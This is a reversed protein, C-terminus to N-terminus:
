SREDSRETRGTGDYGNRAVTGKFGEKRMLFLIFRRIGEVQKAAFFLEGAWHVISLIFWPTVAHAGPM